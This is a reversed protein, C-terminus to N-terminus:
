HSSAIYQFLHGSPLVHADRSVMTDNLTELIAAFSRPFGNAALRSPSPRSFFFFFIAAVITVRGLCVQKGTWHQALLLLNLRPVCTHVCTLVALYITTTNSGSGPWHEDHFFDKLQCITNRYRTGSGITLESGPASDESM